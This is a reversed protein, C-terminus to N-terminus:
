VARVLIHIMGETFDGICPVPYELRFQCEADKMNGVITLGMYPWILPQANMCSFPGCPDTNVKNTIYHWCDDEMTGIKCRYEMYWDVDLM